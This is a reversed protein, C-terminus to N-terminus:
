KDSIPKASDAIRYVCRRGGATVCEIREVRHPAGIVNRLVELEDDCLLPCAMAAARTPCHSTALLFFGDASEHLRTLYGQRSLVTALAKLRNILPERVPIRKALAGAQRHAIASLVKRLGKEGFFERIHQIMESALESHADPFLSDAARRLSWVKAPRGLPRSEENYTVLKQDQLAYLHHRVAM